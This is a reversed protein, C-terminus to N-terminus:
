GTSDDSDQIAALLEAEACLVDGVSVVGDCKWINSRHQIVRVEIDMRDGPVVPHRFKAKDIGAFTFRQYSPDMAKSVYALVCMLQSMAELCLVAPFVPMGPFHGQFIPENASVCKYARASKRPEIEVVRDILLFPARHPLIRLIKTIDLGVGRASLGPGPNNLRPSPNPLRRVAVKGLM